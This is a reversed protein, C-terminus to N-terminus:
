PPFNSVKNKVKGEFYVPMLTLKFEEILKIVRKESKGVYGAGLEALSDFPSKSSETRGGVHDKAEFLIVTKNAKLLERAAMLGSLGGGVVVVDVEEKM